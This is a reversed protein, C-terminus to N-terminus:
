FTLFNIKFKIKQNKGQNKAFFPLLNKQRDGIRSRKGGVGFPYPALPRCFPLFQM